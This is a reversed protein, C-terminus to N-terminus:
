GAPDEDVQEFEHTVDDRTTIEGVRNNLPRPRRPDGKPDLPELGSRLKRNDPAKAADAALATSGYAFILGNKVAPLDKNAARWDDWLDKPVNQTLAFGAVVRTRYEGGHPRANGYIMVERGDPEFFSEDRQGGGLVQVTRTKKRFGRILIGPPFKCAVTVTEGTSAAGRAATRAEQPVPGPKKAESTKAM